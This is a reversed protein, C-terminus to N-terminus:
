DPDNRQGHFHDADHRPPLRRCEIQIDRSMREIKKDMREEFDDLRKENKEDLDKFRKDLETTVADLVATKFGSMLLSKLLFGAVASAAGILVKTWVTDSPPAQLMAPSARLPLTM